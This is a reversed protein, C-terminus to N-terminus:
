KKNTVTNQFTLQLPIPPNLQDKINYDNIVFERANM